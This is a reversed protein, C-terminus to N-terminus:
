FQYIACGVQIGASVNVILGIDGEEVREEKQARRIAFPTSSSFLDHGDPAVNVIKEEPLELVRGLRQVFSPSIQPPFVAALQWPELGEDALLEQVADAICELYHDEWQPSREHAVYPTGHSQTAYATLSDLYRPYAKFLFRVFGTEGDESEDLIVASGAEALGRPQGLGTVLNNEVESALVMATRSRKQKIMGAALYCANLFGVPGNLLDFAFTKRPDQPKRDENIKLDGAAIAAIAPEAIFDSRYLGVHILLDVDDRHYGSRELCAEAARIILERTQAANQGQRASSVGVSELRIRPPQGLNAPADHSAPVPRAPGDVPRGNQGRRLRDPLDDFTYLATGVTQGSGSISFLVSDGSNIRGSLIKDKIAVFHSNSATNGREALNNIVLSELEKGFLRAVEGLGDFMSTKSTQHPIIHQVSDIPMRSRQLVHAAHGALHEVAVATGQIADVNMAVGGHSRGTPKAICLDSYKGVTYMDLDHFGVRDSPAEELIVAAGADGLTLCAMQPHLFSDIEKQATETLHTIYEGSAVLARRIAGVKILADALYAGTFMGACANTLDIAIANALGFQHKLRFSPSPEFAIRNPGDARSINACIFLDIDEPRHRSASLCDEIAKAALDASFETEGAMRRSSIGTLQELPFEIPNRCGQLVEQTTVVKEPVYVGVSEIITTYARAM